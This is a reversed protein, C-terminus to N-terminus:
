WGDLELWDFYDKIGDELKWRAKFGLKDEANKTYALTDSQYTRSDYLMKIYEPDLNKNFYKNIIKVLDNFTTAVGTGVNVICNNVNLAKITADVVDKVYIHDRKQEGFEFLKPNKDEKVQKGLHYIMSAARGKYKERPGYVNFYRLGVIRMRNFLEGAIEDMDLKSKGYVSIIDKEQGEIMPIPGNGYLNASSAYILKSNNKIALNIMKKFGEINNIYTENDDPHRPDTIAAMHFISDIRGIDNMESDKGRIIRGRFCDLNYFQDISTKYSDIVIVENGLRELELALNSGIFGSGGTVLCKM